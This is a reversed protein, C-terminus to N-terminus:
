FEQLAQAYQEASWLFAKEKEVRSPAILLIWGDGYPDQNILNPNDVISSNIQEITGSLPSYLEILTKQSEITGIPQSETAEGEVKLMEVTTGAEPLDVFVIEKLQKQGYDTIGIRVKKNEIGAWVHGIAKKSEAYLLEDPVDYLDKGKKIKVM